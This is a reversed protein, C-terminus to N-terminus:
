FKRLLTVNIMIERELVKGNYIRIKYKGKILWIKLFTYQFELINHISYIAMTLTQM